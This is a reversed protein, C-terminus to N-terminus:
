RLVEDRSEAECQRQISLLASRIGADMEEDLDPTEKAMKQAMNYDPNFSLHVTVECADGIELVELWGSYHRDTDACWEMFYEAPDVKFYGAANYDHPGAGGQVRVRDQGEAEASHLTPLYRPLNSLNSVFNFVDDAPADIMISQEYEPM